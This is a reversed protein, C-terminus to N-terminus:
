IFILRPQQKPKIVTTEAIGIAMVLAVLGDIKAIAGGKRHNKVLKRNGAPDSVVVGNSVNWNLVPHNGHAIKQNLVLSEFSRMAPSMSAFGQGFEAFYSADGEVEEEKFGVQKLWPKLHKYNYRDFAIKKIPMGLKFDEFIKEAIFSYEITSSGRVVNLQHADEWVSYPVKDERQKDQIGNGPIWFNPTVHWKYETEKDEMQQVYVLATLDSVGSLDLGGFIPNTKHSDVPYGCRKWIPASIFPAKTEVRRNLVLNEFEAQSTPMEKAKRQMDLVEEQNMFVDFAPNAAKIAEVSFTDLEEPATNFRLVTKPDKKGTIPDGNLANDILISLLDGDNPAQTSIVISLPNEQAATATELADYLDFKPGRVQGLEDHIILVPSLGFATGADASLARYLAGLEECFLQKATDRITVVEALDPSMRVMKAALAFLIAAQERSQAASFLQSNPRAEPGCLHLLLIMATETTKANKRGRSIIARRTLANPNDYIARFDEKMYEAMNLPQGVYKGEPIRLHKECWAINREARTQTSM